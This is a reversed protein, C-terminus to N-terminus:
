LIRTSLSKCMMRMTMIFTDTPWYNSIILTWGATPKLVPTSVVFSIRRTDPFHLMRLFRKDFDAGFSKITTLYIELSDKSKIRDNATSWVNKYDTRRTDIKRLDALYNNMAALDGSFRVNNKEFHVEINTNPQLYLYAYFHTSDGESVRLALGLTDQNPLKVLMSGSPDFRAEYLKIEKQLLVSRHSISIEKGICAKCAVRIEM